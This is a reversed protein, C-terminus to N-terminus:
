ANRKRVEELYDFVEDLGVVDAYRRHVDTLNARHPEEEVDGVCEEPVIVRFGNSFADIVSARICGSTNCGVVIVTDVREKIFFQTVATQFFISPGSKCIVVDYDADYIKPELETCPHGHHFQEVVAPIKWYPADRGSTYATYCSAVPVNSARAVELLRATNDVADRVMPRGGLPFEADTFGRQFDVVAIGPREGFGIRHAEFGIEKYTDTM